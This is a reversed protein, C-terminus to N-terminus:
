HLTGNEGNQRRQRKLVPEPEEEDNLDPADDETQETESINMTDMAEIPLSFGDVNPKAEGNVRKADSSLLEDIGTKTESEKRSDNITETNSEKSTESAESTEELDETAQIPQALNSEEHNPERPLLIDKLCVEIEDSHGEKIHCTEYVNTLNKMTCLLEYFHTVNVAQPQEEEVKKKIAKKM